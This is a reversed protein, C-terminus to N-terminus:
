WGIPQGDWAFFGGTDAPTLGDMVDLLAKASHDPTLRRATAVAGQGFPASLRTQVTGPHLAVCIAQPHTRRQEIALTRILQNLAAKSARYGYWGGLRNDSISGVRASLAAFLSPADRPALPLLHKAILAPAIANVAFLRQMAEPDIARMSKEPTVGEAHLLGTAVIVRTPRGVDGVAEALGAVEAEQTVDAQVFVADPRDPWDDPRRRAVGVVATYRGADLLRGMLAGGVGGGAGVVVAIPSPSTM